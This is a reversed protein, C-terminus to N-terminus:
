VAPIYDGTRDAFRRKVDHYRGIFFQVAAIALSFIDYAYAAWILMKILITRLM